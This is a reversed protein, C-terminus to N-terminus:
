PDIGFTSCFVLEALKKDFTPPGSVAILLDISTKLPHSTLGQFGDNLSWWHDTAM